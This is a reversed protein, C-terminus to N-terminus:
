ASPARRLRRRAVAGLALVGALMTAPEPVATVPTVTVSDLGTSFNNAASGNFFTLTTTTSTAVFPVTFQLWNLANPTTNPNFYSVRGGGDISLDVTAPFFFGGDSASGVYFSVEYAQGIVTGINQVVGSAASNNVGSLDLWQSGSQAQFTIGSQTFSGSLVAVDVGVVTWNTIALSGAGFVSAGGTAVTPDEFSGNLVQASSATALLSGALLSLLRASTPM